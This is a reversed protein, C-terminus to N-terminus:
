EEKQPPIFLEKWKNFNRVYSIGAGTEVLQGDIAGEYQNKRFGKLRYRGDETLKYEVTVDSTIDSATNEMAKEGEVDVSGGIQVSLRENFLQQKIGIEVETRGQPQGTQYDEYSQVDFNLETAPLVGSSFRNLQASIFNGVTSRVLDTTAGSVTQMPNEQVFRGLILLAFVQKNLTSEDENLLALKQNVAGGLIGKNEPPLQIEFGLVPHLLEGRLQLLVWFPYRQRYSGRDAENLGAMQAAVLDYPAARVEHKADLHLIADMPDGNWTITSGPVIDFRRKIVSEMSVTYSGDYLTYVGTLSMKGSRDMVFSLAAEGRVVLSDTSTPDMLLRVTAQRDVELIASLDIGTFKSSSVVTEPERYLITSGREPENFEVVDEGRNTTLRSEPVVFTFNSGEKMKVRGSVVPLALPGRIDLRTDLVMKGFFTDNEKVTTNFLLFDDAHIRLALNFDRFSEMTVSGDIVATKQDGDTLTFADFYIGAPSFRLTENNLALRNNLVAPKVFVDRFHLEGTVEPTAVAGRISLSGSVTGEAETLQGRSLAAATEMSLARIRARLDMTNGEGGTTFFGHADLDNGAGTLQMSLDYRGDSPSYTQVAMNGLPQDYMALNSIEGDAIIGYGVEKKKLLINGDVLGEVLNGEKEIIGSLQDLDFNRIEINLDDNFRNGASTINIERTGNQMFLHHIRVGSKGFEIFHDDDIGWRQDGLYFEGPDAVLRFVSSDRTIQTRCAFKRVLDDGMSSIGAELKNDEMKGDLLVNDIQIQPTTISSGSVAWTLAQQVTHIDLVFDKIEVEGYVIKHMNGHMTLEGAAGDFNCEIVGPELATLQPLLVQSLIPHNYLQLAFHFGSPDREAEMRSSDTFSFYKNSYVLLEPLIGAPSVTGSYNLDLMDSWINIESSGPENVSVVQLKDMQYINEEMAVVINSFDMSGNMNELGSGTLSGEAKMGIRIDDKTFNLRQLDAGQLEISFSLKEKGSVLIASGEIDMEVYADRVQIRGELEQGAFTGELLLDSYTYRNLHVQSVKAEFSAELSEKDKGSGSVSATCTVPGFMATDNLLRGLDFGIVELGGRFNERSDMTGYIQANGFSSHMMMASTFDTLKGEFQLRISINSPLSIEEPVIVGVIMEMDQRGTTLQMDPLSYSAGKIDPLGTISFDGTLMTQGGTTIIMEEGQLDDVTGYVRGSITSISSDSGALPGIALEPVFYFLDSHRIETKKMDLLFKVLALSDRMEQLSTYGIDLDAEIASHITALSLGRISISDPEMRIDAEFNTISFNNQDTASFKELSIKKLGPSYLLGTAHLTLHRFQMSNVDFAGEYEPSDPVMYVLSNDDMTVRGVSINLNPIKTGPNDVVMVTDSDRESLERQYRIDNKSINIDNISIHNNHLDMLADEIGFRTIAAELFKRGHNDHYIIESNSIRIRGAWIKPIFDEQNVPTSVSSEGTEVKVKLGNLDLSTIRYNSQEVDIEDPKLKMDEVFVDAEVGGYADDFLFSSSKMRVQGISFTRIASPRSLEAQQKEPESFASILFDYNFVTDEPNRAISLQVEDMVLRNIRVNGWILQRFALNVKVSGTYLLTDKMRDELFLGRIVVSKPFRIRINEVEVRTRTRESLSVTIKQVIKNQIAPLQVLGGLLVILLVFSVVVKLVINITKRIISRIKAMM